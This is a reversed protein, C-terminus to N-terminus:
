FVQLIQFQTNLSNLHYEPISFFLFIGLANCLFEFNKIM